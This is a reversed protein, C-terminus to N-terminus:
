VCRNYDSGRLLRAAMWEERKLDNTNSELPLRYEELRWHTRKPRSVPGSFYIFTIKFAFIDGDSNYIPEEEGVSKWFGIGNGVIQAKKSEGNFNEDRRIFFYRESEVWSSNGVISKPHSSYIHSADIDRIVDAPLPKDFVKNKLYYMVLEEDTPSFRYGPPMETEADDKNDM